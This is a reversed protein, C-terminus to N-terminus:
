GGTSTRPTAPLSRTLGEVAFLTLHLRNAVAWARGAPHAALVHPVAPLWGVPEGSGRDHIALETLHRVPQWAAALHAPTTTWPQWGDRIVELCEGSTADWFGLTRDWSV